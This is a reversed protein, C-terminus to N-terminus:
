ADQFAELSEEETRKLRAEREELVQSLAQQYKDLVAQELMRRMEPTIPHVIDRFVGEDDRRSPMAIFMRGGGDIVKIDHVVFSRDFTVSVLGRIKGETYVKRVKIETIEM